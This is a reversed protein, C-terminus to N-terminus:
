ALETLILRRLQQAMWLADLAHGAPNPHTPDTPTVSTGLTYLSAQDTATSFIGSRLVPGPGLRDIFWVNASAAGWCAEQGADRLRFLDLPPSNSSTGTPGFVVLPRGPCQATWHDILVWLAKNVGEQLSSSGPWFTSALGGDNISMMIVGLAPVPVTGTIQDTWGNLALDALRNANQWNVRGGSGPNLLGTGGVSANAPNLGLARLTAIGEGDWQTAGTGEPFSDGILTALPYSRGSGSVENANAVNLGMHRGGCVEIRIRRTASGPFTVKIQRWNGEGPVAATGAVRGNALVRFNTGGQLTSCLMTVEFQTGTHVFEYATYAHSRNAGYWAGRAFYTQNVDKDATGCLWTIRATNTVSVNASSAAVGNITSAAGGVPVTITALDNAPTRYAPQPFLGNARVARVLAQTGPSRAQAAAMGRAIIDTSM